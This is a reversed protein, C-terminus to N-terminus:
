TRTYVFVFGMRRERQVGDVGSFSSFGDSWLIDTLADYEIESNWGCTM